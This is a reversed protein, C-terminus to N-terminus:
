SFVYNKEHKLNLFHLCSFILFFGVIMKTDKIVLFLRLFNGLFSIWIKEYMKKKTKFFFHLHSIFQLFNSRNWQHLKWGFGVSVFQSRNSKVNTKVTVVVNEDRCFQSSDCRFRLTAVGDRNTAVFVDDYCYFSVKFGVFKLKYGNSKSSFQVSPILAIKEM